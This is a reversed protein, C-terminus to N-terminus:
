TIHGTTEYVYSLFYDNVIDIAAVGSTNYDFESVVGLFLVFEDFFKDLTDVSSVNHFVYEVSFAVNDDFLIRHAGLLM